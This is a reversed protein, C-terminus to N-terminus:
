SVSTGQHQSNARPIQADHAVPVSGGASAAAPSSSSPSKRRLFRGVVIRRPRVNGWQDPNFVVREIGPM